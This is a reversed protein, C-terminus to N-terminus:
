KATTTEGTKIISEKWTANVMVPRANLNYFHTKLTQTRSYEKSPSTTYDRVTETLNGGDVGSFGFDRTKLVKKKSDLLKYSYGYYMEGMDSDTVELIQNGKEYTIIEYDVEDEETRTGTKKWQSLDFDGFHPFDFKTDTIIANGKQEGKRKVAGGFVWGEKKDPTIIKLWHEDYAVGRLVIEESKDSKKGTFELAANSDVSTIAKGKTNAANRINLKDVWAYLLDNSTLMKAPEAKTQSTTSIKDETKTEANAKKEEVTTSTTASNSDSTENQCSTYFCIAVLLPLLIKSHTIKKMMILKLFGPTLQNLEFLNKIISKGIM